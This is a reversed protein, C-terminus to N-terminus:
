RVRKNGEDIVRRVDAVEYPLSYQAFPNYVIYGPPGRGVATTNDSSWKLDLWSEAVTEVRKLEQQFERSLENTKQVAMKMDEALKQISETSNQLRQNSQLAIQVARTLSKLLATQKGVDGPEVLQM